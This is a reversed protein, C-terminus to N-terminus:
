NDNVLIYSPIDGCVKNDKKWYSSYDYLVFIGTIDAIDLHFSLVEIKNYPYKSSSLETISSCFLTKLKYIHM